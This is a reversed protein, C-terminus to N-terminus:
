MYLLCQLKELSVKKAIEKGWYSCCRIQRMEHLLNKSTNGTKVQALAIPLRQYMEKPTLITLGTGKIVKVPFIRSRFAIIILQWGEHFYNISYSTNQKKDNDKKLRRRSENSFNAINEMQNTQKKVTEKINMKGSYISDGFHRATEFQQFDFICIYIYIYINYYYYYDM